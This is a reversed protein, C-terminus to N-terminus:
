KASANAPEFVKAKLKERRKRMDTWKGTSGPPKSVHFNVSVSCCLVVRRLVGVDQLEVPLHGNAM